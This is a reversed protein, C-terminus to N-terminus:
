KASTCWWRLESDRKLASTWRCLRCAAALAQNGCGPPHMVVAVAPDGNKNPEEGMQPAPSFTGQRKGSAATPPDPAPDGHGQLRFLPPPPPRLGVGSSMRRFPCPSGAGSGDVATLFFRPTWRRVALRAGYRDTPAQRLHGGAATAAEEKIKGLRRGAAVPGKRERGAWDSVGALESAARVGPWGRLAKSVRCPKRCCRAERM